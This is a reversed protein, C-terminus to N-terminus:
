VHGKHFVSTLFLLSISVGRGEHQDPLYVLKTERPPSLAQLLISLVSLTPLGMLGAQSLARGQHGVRLFRELGKRDNAPPNSSSTGKQTLGPGNRWVLTCVQLSQGLRLSKASLLM